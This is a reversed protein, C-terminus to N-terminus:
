ATKKEHLAQLEDRRKKIRLAMKSHIHSLPEIRVQSIGEPESVVEPGTASSGELPAVKAGVMSRPPFYEVGEVGLDKVIPPNPIGYTEDRQRLVEQIKEEDSLEQREGPINRDPM